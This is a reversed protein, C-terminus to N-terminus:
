HRKPAEGYVVESQAILGYLSEIMSKRQEQSIEEVKDFFYDAAKLGDVLATNVERLALHHEHTETDKVEENETNIM